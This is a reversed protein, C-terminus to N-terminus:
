PMWGLPVRARHLFFRTSAASVPQHPMGIHVATRVHRRRHQQQQGQQEQQLGAAKQVVVGLESGDAAGGSAAAAVAERTLRVRDGRHVDLDNVLPMIGTLRWSTSRRHLTVNHPKTSGDPLRGHVMVHVKEEDNDLLFWPRAPAPVPIHNDYTVEVGEAAASDRSTLRTKRAAPTDGGPARSSGAGGGSGGAAPATGAM